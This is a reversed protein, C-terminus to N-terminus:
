PNLFEEVRKMLAGVKEGYGVAGRFVIMRQGVAKLADVKGTLVDYAADLDRLEMSVYSGKDHIGKFAEIGTKDMKAYAFPGEPKVRWQVIRDSSSQITRKVYEDGKSLEGLAFVAAYLLMKVKLRRLEPDTVEKEPLLIQLFNLLKLVKLLLFIHWIGKVKPMASKKGSFTQNLNEVDKFSITITPAPYTGRKVKLDGGSFVLHASIEKDRVQFQVVCRWKRVMKAMKKDEKVVEELLPLIVYLYINARMLEEEM